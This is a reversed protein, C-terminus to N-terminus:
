IEEVEDITGSLGLRDLGEAWYDALRPHELLYIEVPIEQREAALKVLNGWEESEADGRGLWMLAVLELQQEKNLGQIESIVEERVLYERDEQLTAPIKGDSPNSESLPTVTSEQAMVARVKLILMQVYDTKLSLPIMKNERLDLPGFIQQKVFKSFNSITHILVQGSGLLQELQM